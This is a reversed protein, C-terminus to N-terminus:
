KEKKPLLQGLLFDSGSIWKKDELSFVEPIISQFEKKFLPHIGRILIPNHASLIVQKKWKSEIGYLIQLLNYCSRPSMATDPEDMLLVDVNLKLMNSLLRNLSALNGQGHSVKMAFLQEGVMDFHIASMDRASEREFDYGLCNVNPKSLELDILDEVKYHVEISKARYSSDSSKQSELQLRILEILTSKGSGQDGVLVNIGPKFEFKQDKKFSRFDTKFTISKIM